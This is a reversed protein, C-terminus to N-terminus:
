VIGQLSIQFPDISESTGPSMTRVADFRQVAVVTDDDDTTLWWGYMDEDAGSLCNFQPATARISNAVHATIAPAGMESRLIAVAAYGGFTSEDFDSFSSDDDPTYNNKFGRLFFNPLDSGDTVLAWYLWKLKGEDPIVMLM